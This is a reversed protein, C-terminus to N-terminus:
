MKYWEHGYFNTINMDTVIIDNMDPFTTFNMDTVTNVNMDTVTIVKKDTFSILMWTLLMYYWEHGYFITVNKDTVYLIM